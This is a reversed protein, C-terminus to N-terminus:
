APPRGSAGATELVEAAQLLTSERYHDAALQVGIPLGGSSIAFPISVAPHRTLGFTATINASGDIHPWAYNLVHLIKM